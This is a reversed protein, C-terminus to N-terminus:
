NGRSSLNSNAAPCVKVIQLAAFGTIRRRYRSTCRRMEPLYRAHRLLHRIPAKTLGDFQRASGDIVLSARHRARVRKLIKDPVWERRAYVRDVHSHRNLSLNTAPTCSSRNTCVRNSIRLEPNTVEIM